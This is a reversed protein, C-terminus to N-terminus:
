AEEMEDDEYKQLYSEYINSQHEEGHQFQESSPYLAEDTDLAGKVNSVCTPSVILPLPVLAECNIVKSGLPLSLGLDEEKKGCEFMLSKVANELEVTRSDQKRILKQIYRIYDVSRRLIMGKNPRPGGNNM